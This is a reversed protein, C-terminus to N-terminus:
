RLLINQRALEETLLKRFRPTDNLESIIEVEEINIEKLIALLFILYQGIASYFISASLDTKLNDILESELTAEYKMDKIDKLIREFCAKQNKIHTSLDFDDSQETYIPFDYLLEDGYDILNLINEVDLIKSFEDLFSTLSKDSNYVDKEIGEESVIAVKLKNNKDYVKLYPKKSM